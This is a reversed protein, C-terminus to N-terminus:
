GDMEFALSGCNPCQGDPVQDGPGWHARRREIDDISQLKEAPMVEDCNQCQYRKETPDIPKREISCQGDCAECYEGQMVEALEFDQIAANWRAKADFWLETSGCARCVLQVPHETEYPTVLDNVSVELVKAFQELADLGIDREGRRMRGIHSEGPTMSLALVANTFRKEAVLRNINNRITSKLDNNELPM